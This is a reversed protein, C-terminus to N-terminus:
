GRPDGRAGGCELCAGQRVVQIALDGRETVALTGADIPLLRERWDAIDAGCDLCPERASRARRRRRPDRVSSTALDARCRPGRVSGGAGVVEVRGPRYALM